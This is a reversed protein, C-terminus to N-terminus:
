VPATPVDPTPRQREPVCVHLAPEHPVVHGPSTTGTVSTQSPRSLSQLPTVSLGKLVPVPASVVDHVTPTPAQARVPVKTHRPSPVPVCHETDGPLAAASVQLPMSSSQLPTTSSM